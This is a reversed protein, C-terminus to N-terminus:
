ETSFDTLSGTSLPCREVSEHAFHPLPPRFRPKARRLCMTPTRLHRPQLTIGIAEPGEILRCRVGAAMAGPVLGNANHMERWASPPVVIEQGCALLNPAPELFQYVRTLDLLRESSACRRTPKPARKALIGRGRGM